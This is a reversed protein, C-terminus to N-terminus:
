KNIDRHIAKANYGKNLLIKSIYEAVTVSRHKGGTCGVAVNLETKGKELLLPVSFEVLDLIQKAYQKSSDFQMIYESVAKDLGNLDRLDELYFPNPLCRVDFLLNAETFPAHKFGFSICNIIFSDDAKTM